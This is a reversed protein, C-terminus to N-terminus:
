SIRQSHVRAQKWSNKGKYEFLSLGIARRTWYVMVKCAGFFEENVDCVLQKLELTESTHKVRGQPGLFTFAHMDLRGLRGLKRKRKRRSGM